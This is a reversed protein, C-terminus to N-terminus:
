APGVGGSPAPARGDRGRFGAPVPRPDAGAWRSPGGARDPAGRRHHGGPSTRSRAGVDRAAAGRDRRDCLAAAGGGAAPASAAPGAGRPVGPAEAPGRPPAGGPARRVEVADRVGSRVAALLDPLVAAAGPAAGVHLDRAAG